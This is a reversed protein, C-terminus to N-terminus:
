DLGTLLRTDEKVSQWSATAEQTWAPRCMQFREDRSAANAEFEDVKAQLHTEVASTDEGNCALYDTVLDPLNASAFDESRVGTKFPIHRYGYGRGDIWVTEDEKPPPKRAIGGLKAVVYISTSLDCFDSQNGRITDGDIVRDVQDLRFEIERRIDIANCPPTSPPSTGIQDSPPPFRLSDPVAGPGCSDTFPLSEGCQLRPDRCATQWGELRALTDCTFGAIGRLDAHLITVSDLRASAFDTGQLSAYSFKAQLLDAQTFDSQGLRAGRFDASRLVAQRFSAREVKTAIWHTGNLSSGDFRATRSDPDGADMDACSLRANDLVTGRLDLGPVYIRYRCDVMRGGDTSAPSIDTWRLDQGIAALYKLADAKGTNGAANGSVTQWARSVREEQRADLDLWLAVTAIVVGIVTFVVFAPELHRLLRLTPSRRLRETREFFRTLVDTPEPDPPM